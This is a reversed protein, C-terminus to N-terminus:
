NYKKSAKRQTESKKVALREYEIFKALVMSDELTREHIAELNILTEYFDFVSENNSKNMEDMEIQLFNLDNGLIGLEIQLVNKVEPIFDNELNINVGIEILAKLLTERIEKTTQNFLLFDLVSVISQIKYNMFHIEQKLELYRKSRDNNSKLFFTDYIVVFVSDVEEDNENEFPELLNFDKNELIDFFLKAPINSISNYKPM